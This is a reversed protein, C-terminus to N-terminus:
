LHKGEEPRRQQCLEAVLKLSKNGNSNRYKQIENGKKVQEVTLQIINKGIILAEKVNEASNLTNYDTKKKSTNYLCRKGRVKYFALRHETYETLPSVAFTIPGLDFHDEPTSLGTNAPSRSAVAQFGDRLSVM